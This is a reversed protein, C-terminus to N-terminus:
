RRVIPIRRGHGFAKTTVRLIPPAQKRKYENRDVRNVIDRVVGDDAGLVAAIEEVSQRQEVYRKLIGDLLPYLPLSDQDTQDPRLEASPARSITYDPIPAHPACRENIHRALDYVQTKLVDGLVALGGNMDGYLTAYGVAMESKNGTALLLYGFKNSLAMLLTGRSRAQLNEETVDESRGAFMTALADSFSSVISAIPIEHFTIGLNRALTASDRVSAESSIASPMTLGVVNTPGLAKVALCCTVASDIGGSLGILAKSFIGSKQVYDRIGLVLADHLLAISPYEDEARVSSAFPNWFTLAEEFAAARHTVTGNAACGFSSGDFVLETNAGVQNVMAYPVHYKRSAASALAERELRKGITFPSACINIFLTPDQLGLDELPNVGYLGRMYDFWLDECIHLALRAGKWEIVQRAKGPEFYRREDFVDYTPLLTKHVCCVEREGEYLFAANFLPKGPIARNVAIGGIIIGICKPLRLAVQRRAKQADAVFTNNELLDQPPYGEISLEPFIVLDAGRSRATRAMTVIKDCNGCLDGVIPNTQALAIKM